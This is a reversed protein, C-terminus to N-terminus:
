PHGGEEEMGANGTPLHAKTHKHGIYAYSLNTPPMIIQPDKDEEEQVVNGPHSTIQNKYTKPM